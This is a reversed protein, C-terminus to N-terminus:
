EAWGMKHLPDAHVVGGSVVLEYTVDVVPAAKPSDLSVLQQLPQM